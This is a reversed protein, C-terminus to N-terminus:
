SGERCKVVIEKENPATRVAFSLVFASRRSPFLKFFCGPLSPTLRTMSCNKRVKEARNRSRRSFVKKRLM